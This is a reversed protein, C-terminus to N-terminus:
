SKWVVASAYSVSSDHRTKCASSQAYRVFEISYQSNSAKIAFLLVTIPHRGCITNHYQSLYAIFGEPDLSEILEMGKHDLWEIYQHIEGHDEEYPQYRFRQGWHCFDSSIIFFCNPDDLYPALLRGYQEEQNPSTAGIMICVVKVDNAQEGIIKAVYPLHMEISHEDEDTQQDMAEFLGSGMLEQIIEKNPVLDGVPTELKNAMSIAAGQLYVHHSPGLVFITQVAETNLHKYAYAATPGSYSFGAHPGILAKISGPRETVEAQDLWGQLDSSLANGDDTYWSGAHSASRTYEQFNAMSQPGASKERVRKLTLKNGM